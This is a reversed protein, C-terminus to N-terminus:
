HSKSPSRSLVLLLTLVDNHLSSGCHGACPSKPRSQRTVANRRAASSAPKRKPCTRDQIFLALPGCLIRVSSSVETSARETGRKPWSRTSRNGTDPLRPPACDGFPDPCSGHPLTGHDRSPELAFNPDNARTHLHLHGALDIRGTVIHFCM